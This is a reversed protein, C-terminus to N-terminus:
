KNNGAEEYDYTAEIGKVLFQVQSRSECTVSAKERWTTHKNDPKETTHIYAM